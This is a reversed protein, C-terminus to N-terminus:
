SQNKNNKALKPNKMLEALNAFPRITEAEAINDIDEDINEKINQNTQNIQNASNAKTELVTSQNKTPCIGHKPFAPLNLILEDDIISQLNLEPTVLITDHEEDEISLNQHKTPSLYCAITNQINIKHKFDELCRQCNLEIEGEISLELFYDRSQDIKEHQHISIQCFLDMNEEIRSSATATNIQCSFQMIGYKQVRKIHEILPQQLLQKQNINNEPNIQASTM